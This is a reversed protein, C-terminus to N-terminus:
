DSRVEGQLSSRAALAAVGVVLKQAQLDQDHCRDPAKISMDDVCKRHGDVARKGNAQQPYTEGNHHCPSTISVVKFANSHAKQSCACRGRQDVGWNFEALGPISKLNM